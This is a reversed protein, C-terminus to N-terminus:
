DLYDQTLRWALYVGAFSGVTSVLLSGMLGLGIRDGLWWGAWGGLIMGIYILKRSMTLSVVERPWGMGQGV